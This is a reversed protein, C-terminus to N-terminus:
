LHLHLEPFYDELKERTPGTKVVHLANQECSKLCRGCGICNEAVQARNNEVDLSLYHFPCADACKGCGICEEEIVRCQWGIDNQLVNKLEGYARNHFQVAACCCECCFCIELFQPIDANRFGWVFEEVEVWYASPPLGLKDAKDLHALCEELTAEHAIGNAVCIRAAEGMFLCGFDHPYNKCDFTERCLCGNMVARFDAHELAKVLLERPPTVPTVDVKTGLELRVHDTSAELDVKPPISWGATSHDGGMMAVHKIVRDTVRYKTLPAVAVITRFFLKGFWSRRQTMCIRRKLWDRSGGPRRLVYDPKRRIIKPAANRYNVIRM